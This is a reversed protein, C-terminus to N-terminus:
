ALSSRHRDAQWAWLVLLWTANAGIAVIQESPPPPGFINAFYMMLLFAILGILGWRGFSDNARTSRMYMYVGVGFLTLELALSLPLSNWLGMGVKMSASGALPLDPRHMVLDLVWHSAAVSAVIAATRVSRTTWFLLAGLLTSWCAAGVLSHSIPYDYFDFPTVVTIGPVIHVHEIGLLLFLPWLLDALQAAAFLTGLSTTPSLRKAAFAVAFHGIFM